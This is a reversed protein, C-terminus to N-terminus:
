TLPKSGLTAVIPIVEKLTEKAIKGSPFPKGKEAMQLSNVQGTGSLFGPPQGDIRKQQAVSQLDRATRRRCAWVDEVYTIAVGAPM